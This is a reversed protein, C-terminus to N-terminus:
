IQFSYGSDREEDSLFIVVISEQFYLFASRALSWQSDGCGSHNEGRARFSNLYGCM